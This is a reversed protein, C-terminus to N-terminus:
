VPSPTAAPPARGRRSTRDGSSPTVLRAGDGCPSGARGARDRTPARADTTSAGHAYRVRRACRAASYWRRQQGALANCRGRGRFGSRLARRNGGRAPRAARRHAHPRPPLRLQQCNPPRRRPSCRRWNRCTPASRRCNSLPCRSARGGGRSGAASVGTTVASQASTTAVETKIPRPPHRERRHENTTLDFPTCPRSCGSQPAAPSAPRRPAKQRPTPPSLPSPPGRGRLIRRTWGCRPIPVGPYCLPYCLM